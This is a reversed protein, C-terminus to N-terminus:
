RASHAKPAKAPKPITKASSVTVKSILAKLHPRSHEEIQKRAINVFGDLIAPHSTVAYDDRRDMRVGDSVDPFSFASAWKKNDSSFRGDWSKVQLTAALVLSVREPGYKDLVETVAKKELRMGDFHDAISKEIDLKCNVNARYSERYQNLEGHERAYAASHPYVPIKSYPTIKEAM